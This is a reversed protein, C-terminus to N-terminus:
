SLSWKINNDNIKEGENLYIPVITKGTKFAYYYELTQGNSMDEDYIIMLVYDCNDIMRFCFDLIDERKKDEEFFWFLHLPSIPLIDDKKNIIKCIKNIRDRNNKIDSSLPHSVFVKDRIKIM